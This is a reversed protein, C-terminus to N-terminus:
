PATFYGYERAIIYHLKEGATKRNMEQIPLNKFLDPFLEQVIILLCNFYISWQPSVKYKYDFRDVLTLNLTETEKSFGPYAASIYWGTDAKQCHANLFVMPLDLQESVQNFQDLFKAVEFPKAEIEPFKARSNSFYIDSERFNPYAMKLLFIREEPTYKM